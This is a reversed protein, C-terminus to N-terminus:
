AAKRRLREFEANADAIRAAATPIEDPFPLKALWNFGSKGLIIRLLDHPAGAQLLMAHQDVGAPLIRVIEAMVEGLGSELEALRAATSELDAVIETRRHILPIVDAWARSVEAAKAAGAPRQAVVAAIAADIASVSAQAAELRKRAADRPAADVGDLEVAINLRDYERKAVDHEAAALRLREKLRDVPDTAAAEAQVIRAALINVHDIARDLALRAVNWARAALKDHPNQAANDATGRYEGEATELTAVAETHLQRLRNVENPEAAAVEPAPEGTAAGILRALGKAM